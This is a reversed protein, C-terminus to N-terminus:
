QNYFGLLRNKGAETIGVSLARSLDVRKVDRQRTTPNATTIMLSIINNFTKLEQIDWMWHQQHKFINEESFTKSRENTVYLLITNWLNGFEDSPSDEIVWKLFSWFDYQARVATNVDINHGPIMIKKFADLSNLAIIQNAYGSARITRLYDSIEVDDGELTVDQVQAVSTTAVEVKLDETDKEVVPGDQSTLSAEAEVLPTVETEVKPANTPRSKTIYKPNM